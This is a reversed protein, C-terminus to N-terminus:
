GDARLVPAMSYRGDPMATEVGREDRHVKVRYQKGFALDEFTVFKATRAVVAYVLVTEHNSAMRCRYLDGVVFDTATAPLNTPFTM